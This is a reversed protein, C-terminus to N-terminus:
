GEGSEGECKEEGQALGDKLQDLTDLVREMAEQESLGQDLGELDNALDKLAEAAEKLDNEGLAKQANEMGGAMDKLDKAGPDGPNMKDLQEALKDGMRDLADKLQQRDEAPLDGQALQKQLKEMEKAAEDFKGDKLLKEIKTEEQPSNKNLAQQMRRATEQKDAFQEKQQKVTDALRSLKAMAEKKEGPGSKMLESLKQLEEATKKVEELKKLKALELLDQKKKELTKAQEKALAAVAAVEDAHAKRAFLDWQPLFLLALVALAAPAPLWRLERPPRFPIAEAPRVREAWAQADALLAREMATAPEGLTLASTLREKLNAQEDAALAAELADYRRMAGFFLTALGAGALCLGAAMLLPFGLFIFRDLCVAIFFAAAAWFLSRVGIRAVAVARMRKQLEAIRRRLLDM